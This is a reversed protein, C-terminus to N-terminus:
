KIFMRSTLIKYAILIIQRNDENKLFSEKIPYDLRWQSFKSLDSRYDGKINIDELADSSVALTEYFRVQYNPFKERAQLFVPLNIFSDYDDFPNNIKPNSTNRNGHNETEDINLIGKCAPYTSCGYFQKGKFNGKRATKLVM